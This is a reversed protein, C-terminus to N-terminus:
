KVRLGRGAEVARNGGHELFHLLQDRVALPDQDGHRVGAFDFAQGVNEALVGHREAQAAARAAAFTVGVFSRVEGAFHEGGRQGLGVDGVADDQGVRIERDEARAIQEVLGLRDDRARLPLLRLGGCEEGIEAVQLDAVVDDVDLVADPLILSQLFDVLAVAVRFEHQEFIGLARPQIHRQRPEVQHLFITRRFARLRYQIMQARAAQAFVLARTRLAMFSM